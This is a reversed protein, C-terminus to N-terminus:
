EKEVEADELDDIRFGELERYAAIFGRTFNDQNPEIGASVTLSYAADNVRHWAAAFFAKTVANERWAAFDSATIKEM